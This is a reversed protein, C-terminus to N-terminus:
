EGWGHSNCRRLLQSIKIIVKVIKQPSDCERVVTVDGEHYDFM